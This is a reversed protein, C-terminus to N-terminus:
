TMTMVYMKFGLAQLYIQEKSEHLQVEGIFIIKKFSVGEQYLVYDIKKKWSCCVYACEILVAKWVSLLEKSPGAGMLTLVSPTVHLETM